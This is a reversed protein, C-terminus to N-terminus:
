AHMLAALTSLLTTTVLLATAARRRRLLPRLTEEESDAVLAIPEMAAARYEAKALRVLVAGSGAAAVLPALSADGAFQSAPVIDFGEGARAYVRRLFDIRSGDILVAVLVTVAAAIAVLLLPIVAMGKVLFLGFAALLGATGVFGVGFGESADHGTLRRLARAALLLFGAVLLAPTGGLVVGAMLWTLPETTNVLGGLDKVAGDWGLGTHFLVFAQLVVGILAGCGTPLAVSAVTRWGDDKVAELVQGTALALVGAMVIGFLFGVESYREIEDFSMSLSAVAVAVLVLAFTAKPAVGRKTFAEVANEQRRHDRDSLPTLASEM